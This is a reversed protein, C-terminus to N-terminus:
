VDSSCHPMQAGLNARRVPLLTSRQLQQLVADGDPALGVFCGAPGFLLLGTLLEEM